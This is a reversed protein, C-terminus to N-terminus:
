TAAGITGRPQDRRCNGHPKPRAARSFGQPAQKPRKFPNRCKAYKAIANRSSVVADAAVTEAFCVVPVLAAGALTWERRMDARLLDRLFRPWCTISGTRTRSIWAASIRSFYRCPWGLPTQSARVLAAM